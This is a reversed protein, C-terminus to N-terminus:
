FQVPLRQNKMRPFNNSTYNTSTTLCLTGSLTWWSCTWCREVYLFGSTVLATKPEQHHATYWGFCTSSWIFISYYFKIYLQMKNSKQEHITSHHVSGRVDLRSVCTVFRLSNHSIDARYKLWPIRGARVSGKTKLKAMFWNSRSESDTAMIGKGKSCQIHLVTSVVDKVKLLRATERRVVLNLM